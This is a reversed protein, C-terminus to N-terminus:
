RVNAFVGSSNGMGRLDLDKAVRHASTRAEHGFFQHPYGGVVGFVEAPSAGEGGSRSEGRKAEVPVLAMEEIGDARVMQRTIVRQLWPYDAPAEPSEEHPLVRLRAWGWESIASPHARRRVRV